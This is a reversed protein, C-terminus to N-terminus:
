EVPTGLATEFGASCARCLRIGKADHERLNNPYARACTPDTCRPVGLLFGISSLAQKMTRDVLRERNPDDGNFDSTFRRYSMIAYGRSRRASGFVFNTGDSYIDLNTISLFYANDHNYVHIAPVLENGLADVDWQGDAQSIRQILDNCGALGVEGGQLFCIRRLAELVGSDDDLSQGTIGVGELNTALAPDSQLQLRLNKRSETIFQTLPTRTPKPVSIDADYLLVPIGLKAQLKERLLGLVCVDVDGVPVVTLSARSQDTKEIRPIPKLASLSLFERSRAVLDDTEAYELVLRAKEAALDPQGSAALMEAHLMQYRLAWPQRKLGAILYSMAAADNSKVLRDVLDFVIGVRSRILVNDGTALLSDVSSQLRIATQRQSGDGGPSRALAPGVSFLLDCATVAILVGTAFRAERVTSGDLM